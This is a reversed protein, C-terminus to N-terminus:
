YLVSPQRKEKGCIVRPCWLPIQFAPYVSHELMDQIQKKAEELELPSLKYLPRHIPPTEDELDIKFEHGMMAPPVGKPLESPFVDEYRELVEWIIPPLDPKTLKEVDSPAGVNAEGTGRDNVKWILGLYAWEGRSNRQLIQKFAKASIFNIERESQSEEETRSSYIRVGATVHYPTFWEM